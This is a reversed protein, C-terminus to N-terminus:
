QGQRIEPPKVKRSISCVMGHEALWKQYDGAAYLSVRDTHYRCGSLPCRCKNAM